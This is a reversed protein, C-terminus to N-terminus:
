IGCIDTYPCFRCTKRDLTQSFEIVGQCEQLCAQLADLDGAIEESSKEVLSGKKLDYFYVRLRDQPYGLARAGLTYIALQYDQDKPAVQSKFKYDLLRYTGDACLDLRDIIGTFAFGAFSTEFKEECAVVQAEQLLTEECAFFNSLKRVVVEMKFRELASLAGWKPLAQLSELLTQANIPAHTHSYVESNYYAQLAHHLLSGQNVGEQPPPTLQKVYKLYFRRKCDLFDRLKSASLGLDQPLTEIYSEQLHALPRANLFLTFAGELTSLCAGLGLQAIMKSPIANNASSYAIDTHTSHKILQYYYHKQLNQKDQLTPLGLAHRTLTNLFLDSDKIHPVLRDNFDLIVVRDFSLGRCELVDLVKIKGGSVDDVRLDQLARMFLELLDLTSYHRLTPAIRAYTEFFEQCFAVLKSKAQIPTTQLLHSCREQLTQLPNACTPPLTQWSAKLAELANFYPTFVEKAEQGRAFNLNHGLDLLKLAGLIQASPTIIALTSPDLDEKLWEQVRCLALGVQDLRGNFNYLRVTQVDLPTQPHAKIISPEQRLKAQLDISYSYEEQLDLGLFHLFHKNYRDCDVHLILPVSKAIQYLMEQEQASLFGELYFEIRAFKELVPTLLTPRAGLIADYYGLQKLIAQYCDGIRKLVALHNEYDGYIDKTPIQDMSVGFKALENFFHAVFASGDLYGLFSQEFVVLGEILAGEKAVEKIAEMLLVQRVSEPIKVLGEVFSIQSYFEQVSWTTPLFGEPQKAYFANCARRSSFVYLIPPTNLDLM